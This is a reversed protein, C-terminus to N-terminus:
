PTRQRLVFCIFVFNIWDININIIAAQEATMTISVIILQSYKQRIVLLLKIGNITIIPKVAILPTANKM